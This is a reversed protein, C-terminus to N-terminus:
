VTTVWSFPRKRGHCSPPFPFTLRDGRTRAPGNKGPNGLPTATNPAASAPRGEPNPGMLNQHPMGLETALAKVYPNQAGQVKGFDYSGFRPSAM